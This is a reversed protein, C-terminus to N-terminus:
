CLLFVPLIPWRFFPPFTVQLEFIPPTLLVPCLFSHPGLFHSFQLGPLSTVPRTPVQTTTFLFLFQVRAWCATSAVQAPLTSVAPSPAHDKSRSGVIFTITNWTQIRCSICAINNELSPCFALLGLHSLLHPTVPLLLWLKPYILRSFFRKELFHFFFYLRFPQYILYWIPLYSSKFLALNLNFSDWGVLESECSTEFWCRKCTIWGM